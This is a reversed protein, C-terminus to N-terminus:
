VTMSDINNQISEQGKDPVHNFLSSLHYIFEFLKLDFKFYFSKKNFKKM